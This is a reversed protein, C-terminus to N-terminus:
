AFCPKYAVPASPQVVVSGLVRSFHSCIKEETILDLKFHVQVLALFVLVSIALIMM